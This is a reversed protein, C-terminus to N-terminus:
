AFAARPLSFRILTQNNFPNPHNQYLAMQKPVVSSINGKIGSVVVLEGAVKEGQDVGIVTVEIDTENLVATSVNGPSHSHCNQENCGPTEGNISPTSYTLTFYLTCCLFLEAEFFGKM